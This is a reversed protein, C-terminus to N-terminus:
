DVSDIYPCPSSIEKAEPVLSYSGWAKWVILSLEIRMSVLVILPLSGGVVTSIFPAPLVNRGMEELAITLDQFTGGMGGYKEPVILGLWGLKAMGKMGSKFYDPHKMSQLFPMFMAIYQNDSMREVKDLPLKIAM